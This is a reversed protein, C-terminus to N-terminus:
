TRLVLFDVTKDTRLEWSRKALSLKKSKKDEGMRMERSKGARDDGDRGLLCRFLKMSAYGIECM